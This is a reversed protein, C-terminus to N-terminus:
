KGGAEAKGGLDVSGSFDVWDTTKNGPNAGRKTSATIWSNDWGTVQALRTLWLGV